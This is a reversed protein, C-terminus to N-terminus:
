CASNQNQLFTGDTGNTGNTGNKGNTVDTGDTGNALKDVIDNKIRHIHSTSLGMHMGIWRMSKGELLWHLVEYEREDTIIHIRSQIKRVENEYHRIKEWRRSRRVVESYIPDGTQGKPKPLSSELGYQATLGEGAQELSKRMIKISNIMWHYDKLILEIEKRQM